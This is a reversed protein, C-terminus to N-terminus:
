GKQIQTCRTEQQCNLEKSWERSYNTTSSFLTDAMANYSNFNYLVSLM